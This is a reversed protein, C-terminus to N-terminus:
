PQLTPALAIPRENALRVYRMNAVLQATETFGNGHLLPDRRRGSCNASTCRPLRKIADAVIEM